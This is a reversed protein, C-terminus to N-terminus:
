VLRDWKYEVNAGMAASDAARKYHWRQDPGKQPRDIWAMSLGAEQRGTWLVMKDV